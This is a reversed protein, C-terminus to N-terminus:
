EGVEPHRSRRPGPFNEDDAVGATLVINPEGRKPSAAFPIEPSEMFVAQSDADAPSGRRLRYRGGNTSARSATLAAPDAFGVARAGAAILAAMSMTLWERSRSKGEEDQL